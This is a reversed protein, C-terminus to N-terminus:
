LHLDSPWPLSMVGVQIVEPPDQTCPMPNRLPPPTDNSGRMQKMVRQIPGRFCANCLSLLCVISVRLHRGAVWSTGHLCLVM